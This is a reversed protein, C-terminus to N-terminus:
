TCLPRLPNALTVSGSASPKSYETRRAPQNRKARAAGRTTACYVNYFQFGRPEVGGGRKESEM